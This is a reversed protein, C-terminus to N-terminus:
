MGFVQLRNNGADVAVVRGKRDVAVGWPYALEGLAHGAAGWTGQSKGTAKEIKQVRNNGFECIVLSKGDPSEALGYPYRFQGGDSGPGGMSRLFTGDTKFVVVRHNCADTIYVTDTSDILISQPRAFQGDGQGFSGFQYLFKGERDFVQVRDNDGYEAVFVNGKSDFAIDTPYIFQGPEKGASGWTRVVEGKPSYVMVRQYHTDPVYVNGDPGVSVGVPKGTMYDPMRWESLYQGDHDLHQVRALRDIVFFTDDGASYAIARPYVVQGKGTGTSLWVEDPKARDSCGLGLFFSSPLLIFLLATRIRGEATQRRGQGHRWFLRGLSLLLVAVVTLGAAMGMLLLSAELMDDYRLMHVWTMLLPVIPRFNESLPSILVTAPVETLALIGVLVAAAGLTPWALPWVVQTAARLDGAGDVAALERVQRWPRTRTAAAALLALWGFRAVYAMVVVPAGDYVWELGPRNYLRILAIALLQGGLLFTLLSAGLAWKSGRVSAAAALVLAAAAALAALRLSGNVQPAFTRWVQTPDLPRKMSIVMSVIPTLLTVLLVLFGAVTWSRPADLVRPWPGADLDEAASLKAIALLGLLGIVGVVALMPLAAGLAATARVAQDGTLALEPNSPATIPNFPSSFIGTEFVIRVETAVVSIGTPEYVSFEQAALVVVCALGALAPGLLQRATVRWYAGDLLAQQQVNVDVRRLALGIVGAPIPWLWAALTLICRSVDGFGAPVLHVDLLRLFQSWGYAYAISPMLLAVPLLVAMGRAAWGRGRGLVIAAPIAIVTAIVGVAGNYLLTRGLLKLHFADTFAGALSGPARLVQYSLWLLPLGSCVGVILIVISPAAFRAAAGSRRAPPTSPEYTVNARAHDM